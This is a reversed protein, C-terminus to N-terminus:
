FAMSYGLCLAMEVDISRKLNSHEEFFCCPTSTSACAVGVSIAGLTSDNDAAALSTEVLTNHQALTQTTTPSSVPSSPVLYNNSGWSLIFDLMSTNMTNKNSSHVAERQEDDSSNDEHNFVYSDKHNSSGYSHTTGVDSDNSISDNDNESDALFLSVSNNGHDLNPVSADDAHSVTVFLIPFGSPHGPMNEGPSRPRQKTRQYNTVKNKGSKNSAALLAPDFSPLRPALEAFHTQLRHLTSLLTGMLPAVKKLPQSGVLVKFAGEPSQSLLEKRKLWLLSAGTLELVKDLEWTGLKLPSAIRDPRTYQSIGMSTVSPHKTTIDFFLDWLYLANRLSHVEHCFLLRLWKACYIGHSSPMAQIHNYLVKNCAVDPLKAVVSDSMATASKEYCKRLSVMLTEFLTFTDDLLHKKKLLLHSFGNGKPLCEIDALDIEFVLMIKSCIEHM